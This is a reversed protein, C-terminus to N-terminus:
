VFPSTTFLLLIIVPLISTHIPLGRRKSFVFIICFIEVGRLIHIDSVVGEYNQLPPIKSGGELFIYFIKM